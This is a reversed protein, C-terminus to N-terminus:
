NNLHLPLFSVFLVIRCYYPYPFLRFIWWYIFPYLYIYIYMCHFVIWAYSYFLAMQAVHISRSIIMSLWFSFSLYWIIDNIHPISFIVCIFKDVFCLCVWLSLSCVSPRWSIVPHLFSPTPTHSWCICVTISLIPLDCPGVMYRLSSNEIDQLLGYHFLIHM